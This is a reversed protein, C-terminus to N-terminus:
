LLEEVFNSPQSSSNKKKPIFEYGGNEIFTKGKKSISFSILDSDLKSKIIGSQHVNIDVYGNEILEILYRDFRISPAIINLRLVRGLIGKSDGEHQNLFLLIENLDQYM